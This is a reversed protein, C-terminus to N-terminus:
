GLGTGTPPDQLMNLGNTVCGRVVINRHRGDLLRAHDVRVLPVTYRAALGLRTRQTLNPGSRHLLKESFLVFEGPELLANIALTGDICGPAVTDRLPDGTLTTTPWIQSHSGPILQLCGNEVTTADLALWATVNIVPEIPWYTLDQHWPVEPDNPQKCWFNSRWLVIDPGLIAEVADLVAPLACLDYALRSDLHRCQVSPGIMGASRGIVEELVRARLDSPHDTDLARFPGAYGNREYGARLHEAGHWGGCNSEMLEGGAAHGQRSEAM